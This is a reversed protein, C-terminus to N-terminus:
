ARLFESEVPFSLFCAKSLSFFRLFFRFRSRTAPGEAVGAVSFSCVAPRLTVAPTSHRGTCTLRSRTAAQVAAVGHGQGSLAVQAWAAEGARRQSKYVFPLPYLTADPASGAHLGGGCRETLREAAAHEGGQAALSFRIVATLNHSGHTVPGDVGSM